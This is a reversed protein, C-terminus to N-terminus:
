GEVAKFQRRRKPGSIQELATGVEADLVHAYRQTTGIDAHDLAKSVLALNGTARLLRTATDHRFDHFRFGAVGAKNRLRRWATNLGSKTLPYRRGKVLGREPRTQQAEYTFVFEPHHGRLPWLIDKITPTIMLRVIRGGKGPWQASGADFNIHEWRLERCETKRKGTARAFRLLPAYDDRTAAEIRAAEDDRLLREHKAPEKLWLSKWNPESSFVAGRQKAYTFLKKLQETTDNITAPAITRQANPVKDRRRMAILAAVKVSTIATLPTSGGFHAILYAILRETNDRGKHADGVETMYRGAVHDLQLSTSCGEEATMQAVIQARIIREAEEAERRSTCRTSGHFRRRKIEFQYQYFPSKRDKSVSM